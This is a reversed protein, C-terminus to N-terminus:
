QSCLTIYCKLSFISKASTTLAELASVSPRASNVMSANDVASNISLLNNVKKYGLFPAALVQIFLEEEVIRSLKWM